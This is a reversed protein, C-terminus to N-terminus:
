QEASILPDSAPAVIEVSPPFDSVGTGELLDIIMAQLKARLTEISVAETALGRIDQTTVVWVGADPDSDAHIM